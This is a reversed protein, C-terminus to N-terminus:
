GEVQRCYGGGTGHSVSHGAAVHGVRKPVQGPAAALLVRDLQLVEQGLLFLIQQRDGLMATGPVLQLMENPAAADTVDV